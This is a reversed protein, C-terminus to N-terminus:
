VASGKRDCGFVEFGNDVLHRVLYPGVFGGVGTIFARPKM